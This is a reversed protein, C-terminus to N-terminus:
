LWSIVFDGGTGTQCRRINGHAPRLSAFDRHDAAAHDAAFHRLFGGIPMSERALRRITSFRSPIDCLSFNSLHVITERESDGIEVPLAALPFASTQRIYCKFAPPFHTAPVRRINTIRYFFKRKIFLLLCNLCRCQAHGIKM